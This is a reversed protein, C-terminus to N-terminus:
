SERQRTRRKLIGNSFDTSFDALFTGTGIQGVVAQIRASIPAPLPAQQSLLVDAFLSQAALEAQLGDAQAASTQNAVTVSRPM